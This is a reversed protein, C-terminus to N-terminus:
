IVLWYIVSVSQLSKQINGEIEFQVNNLNSYSYRLKKTYLYVRDM